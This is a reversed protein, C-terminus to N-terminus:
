ECAHGHPSLSRWLEVRGRACRRPLSIAQEGHEPTDSYMAQHEIKLVAAESGNRSGAGAGGRGTIGV